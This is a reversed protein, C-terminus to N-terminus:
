GLQEVFSLPVISSPHHSYATLVPITIVQYRRSIAMHSTDAIGHRQRKCSSELLVPFVFCIGIATMRSFRHMSYSILMHQRHTWLEVFTFLSLYGLYADLDSLATTSSDLSVYTPQQPFRHHCSQHAAQPSGFSALELFCPLYVTAAFTESRVGRISRM